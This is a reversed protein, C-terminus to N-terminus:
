DAPAAV